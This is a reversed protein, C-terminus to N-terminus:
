KDGSIENVNGAVFIPPDGDHRCWRYGQGIRRRLVLQVVGHTALTFVQNMATVPSHTYLMAQTAFLYLTMGCVQPPLLSSSAKVLRAIM